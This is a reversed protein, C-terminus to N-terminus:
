CEHEERCRVGGTECPLQLAGASGPVHEHAGAARSAKGCKQLTVELAVSDRCSPVSERNKKSGQGNGHRGDHQHHLEDDKAPAITCSRQSRTGASKRALRSRWEKKSADARYEVEEKGRLPYRASRVDTQLEEHHLAASTDEMLECLVAARWREQLSTRSIIVKVNKHSASEMFVKMAVHRIRVFPGDAEERM